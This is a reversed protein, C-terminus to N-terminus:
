NVDPTEIFLLSHEPMSARIGKLFELPNHIHEIVHRCIVIDPHLDSYKEDYYEKFFRVNYAQIDDDQVYSTDFGYAKCTGLTMAMKKIYYGKGCGVEVITSDWPIYKEILYQIQKNIYNFFYPSYIQNNNYEGSYDVKDPDFACNYIFGTTEDLCIDLEGVIAKQADEETKYLLNQNAPTNSQRFLKM